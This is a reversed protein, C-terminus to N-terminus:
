FNVCFHYGFFLWFPRWFPGWSHALIMLIPELLWGLLPSWSHMSFHGNWCRQINGFHLLYCCIRHNEPRPKPERQPRMKSTNQSGLHLGLSDFFWKLFSDFFNHGCHGWVPGLPPGLISGFDDFIFDQFCRTELTAGLHSGSGRWSRNQLPKPVTKPGIEDTKRVYTQHNQYVNNLLMNGVVVNLIM